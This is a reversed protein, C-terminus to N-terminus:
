LPRITGSAPLLRSPQADAYHNIMANAALGIDDFDRKEMQRFTVFM